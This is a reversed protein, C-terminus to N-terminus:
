SFQFEMETLSLSQKIDLDKTEPATIEMNSPESLSAAQCKFQIESLIKSLEDYSVELDDYEVEYDSGKGIEYRLLLSPEEDSIRIDISHDGYIALISISGDQNAYPEIDFGMLKVSLYVDKALSIVNESPADGRGFKWGKPLAGFSDIKMSIADEASIEAKSQEVSYSWVTDHFLDIM